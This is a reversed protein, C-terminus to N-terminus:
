SGSSDRWSDRAFRGGKKRMTRKVSSVVLFNAERRGERRRGVVVRGGNEAEERIERAIALSAVGIRTTRKVSSVVLFNAERREERRRGVRGVAMKLEGEVAL